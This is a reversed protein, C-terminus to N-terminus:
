KGLLHSIDNAFQVLNFPKRFFALINKEDQLLERTEKETSYGSAIVVKVAPNIKELEKVLDHGSIKPMMMDTIVLDVEQWSDHYYEIALFPDRFSKVTYGLSGMFDTMMQCFADEDDVLLVKINSESVKVNSNLKKDTSLNEEIVPLAIIFTSGSGVASQASISGNHNKITGSAAALGLGTGSGSNNTTFFPEFIHKLTEQDMGTGTDSIMIKIYQGPLLVFEPQSCDKELLTENMTTFTIMGGNPMANKANIAINMIMNQLQSLDGRVTFLAANLEVKIAIRKDITHNFISIVEIIIDHMSVPVSQYNGKRAFALLQRTLDASSGAASLIHELCEKQKAPSLANISLLASAYGMIISLQNNFDHAIGSALFGIAKVKEEQILQKELAAKEIEAKNRAEIESQLEINRQRIGETLMSNEDFIKDITSFWSKWISPINKDPAIKNGRSKALIFNVFKEAPHILKHHTIFLSASVLFLMCVILGLSGYGIQRIISSLATQTPFYYIISFPSHAFSSKIFKWRGAEMITNEPAKLIMNLDPKLDAPLVDQLKKITKDKFSIATPHAMLNQAQDFIVMCGKRQPEFEVVITNLFDVTLDAGILGTFNDQDYVPVACSTMIGGGEGSSDIYANTWYVSRKPNNAPLSSKWIEYSYLTEGFKYDKSAVWPHHVLMKETSIYYIYMLNPLTQRFAYFDDSLNLGMQLIRYFELSRNQLTANGTVNIHINEQYPKSIDDIHYYNETVNEKIFKYSFPFKVGNQRSEFLDAEASVKIQALQSEIHFFRSDILNKFEYFYEQLAKADYQSHRANQQMILIIFATLIFGFIGAFLLAHRVQFKVVKNDSLSM